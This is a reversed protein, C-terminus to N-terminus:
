RRLALLRLKRERLATHNIRVPEPEPANLEALVSSLDRVVTSGATGPYAPYTVLSVDFLRVEQLTRVPGEETKEWSDRLVNFGFSGANIDGRQVSVTLDRAWSTDPLIAEAHLGTVDVRLALTKSSTRGLVSDPSHNFLAVVDDEQLARTFARRSVKERFGGLDESLSDFVAPYWALRTAGDETTARLELPLTRRELM